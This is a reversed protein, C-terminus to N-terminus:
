GEEAGAEDRLETLVQRVRMETRQIRGRCVRILEAAREVQVSLEDLDIAETEIGDLIAKLERIAEAYRIAEEPADPQTPEDSM